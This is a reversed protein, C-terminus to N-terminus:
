GHVYRKVIAALINGNANQNIEDSIDEEKKAKEMAENLIDNQENSLVFTRQQFDPDQGSLEPFGVESPDLKFDKLGLLDMDFDPGLEPLDMNIGGLDLEAWSAISNDSVMHAYKQEENDYTQFIVPVHTMGMKKAAMWRGCGVTVDNTGLEATLPNRFGQYKIIKILRDIQEESHKNRNKEWPHISDIPVLEIKESKVKM